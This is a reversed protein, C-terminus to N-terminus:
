NINNGNGEKAEGGIDGSLFLRGRATPSQGARSELPRADQGIEGTPTM